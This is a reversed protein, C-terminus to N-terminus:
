PRSRLLNVGISSLKQRVVKAEEETRHNAYFIFRWNLFSNEAWADEEAIFNKQLLYINKWDEGDLRFYDGGRSDNECLTFVCDLATALIRAASSLDDTQLGYTDEIM